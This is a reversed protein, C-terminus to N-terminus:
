NQGNARKRIYSAAEFPATGHKPCRPLSGNTDVKQGCMPCSAGMSATKITQDPNGLVSNKEMAM